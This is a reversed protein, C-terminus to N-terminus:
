QWLISVKDEAIESFYDRLCTEDVDKFKLRFLSLPKGVLM